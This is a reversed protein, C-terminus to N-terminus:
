YNKYENQDAREDMQRDFQENKYFWDTKKDVPHATRNKDLLLSFLVGLPIAVGILSSLTSAYQSIGSTNTSLAIIANYLDVGFYMGYAIVYIIAGLLKRKGVLLICLLAVFLLVIEINMDMPVFAFEIGMAHTFAVIVRFIWFMVMFILLLYSSMSRM